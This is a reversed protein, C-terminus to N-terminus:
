QNVARVDPEANENVDTSADEIQSVPQSEASQRVRAHRLILGTEGGNTWGMRAMVAGRGPIQQGQYATLLSDLKVEQGATLPKPASEDSVAHLATLQRVRAMPRTAPRQRVEATEPTPQSAAPTVPRTPAVEPQSPEPTHSTKLEDAAQRLNGATRVLWSTRTQSLGTSATEPEPERDRILHVLSGGMGVVAVPICSVIVTVWWPAHTIGMAEMLHYAVQGAAGVILAGIASWRAFSRARHPMGPTLWVYLAFAAYAEMGIPLTVATNIVADDWIGPLPRVKGFGTMGGLGVWGGWIAVSAPLCLFLIPWTHRRRPRATNTPAQSDSQTQSAPQSM